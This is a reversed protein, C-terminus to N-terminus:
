YFECCLTNLWTSAGGYICTRLYLHSLSGAGLSAMTSSGCLLSIHNYSLVYIGHYDVPILQRHTLISMVDDVTSSATVVPPHELFANWLYHIRLLGVPISVRGVGLIFITFPHENLFKQFRDKRM